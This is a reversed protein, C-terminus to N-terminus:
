GVSNVNICFMVSWCFIINRLWYLLMFFVRGYGHQERKEEASEACVAKVHSLNSDADEVSYKEPGEDWREDCEYFTKQDGTSDSRIVVCLGM